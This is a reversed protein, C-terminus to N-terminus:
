RYAQKRHKVLIIKIEKDDYNIEYVIRYDGQRIRYCSGKGELKKSGRPRPDDNLSKIISLIKTADELPINDIDKEVKRGHSIRFTM